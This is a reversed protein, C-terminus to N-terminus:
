RIFKLCRVTYYNIRWFLFKYNEHELIALSRNLAIKNIKNIKKLKIEM